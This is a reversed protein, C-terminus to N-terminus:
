KLVKLRVFRVQQPARPPDAEADEAGDAEAGAEVGENEVKTRVDSGYSKGFNKTQFRQPKKSRLFMRHHYYSQQLIETLM